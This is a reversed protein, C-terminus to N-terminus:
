FCCFHEGSRDRSGSGSCGEVGIEGTVRGSGRARRGRSECRARSGCALSSRVGLLLRALSM